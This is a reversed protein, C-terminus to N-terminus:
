SKIAEVFLSINNWYRDFYARNRMVQTSSQGPAVIYTTEFGAEELMTRLKNHTWWNIHNYRYLKQKKVSCRSTCISMAEAFTNRSFIQKFENDDIPTASGDPHSIAANTAFHELFVQEISPPCLRKSYPQYHRWYFFSIDNNKYAIFDLENNPVIVRFVGKSKLIRYVEKFMVAAAEDTIHEITYQSHVLEASGSEIPLPELTLLDHSITNKSRKSIVTGPHMFDVNTWCPHNLGGGFKFHGGGSIDYFKKNQVSEEGYRQLYLNIDNTKGTKKLDHGTFNIIKKVATKLFKKM